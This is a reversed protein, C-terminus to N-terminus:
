RSAVSKSPGPRKRATDSRDASAGVATGGFWARGVHAVGPLRLVWAVPQTMGLDRALRQALAYGTFTQGGAVLEAPADDRGTGAAARDTLDVQDWVDLAHALAAARVQRPERSTYRVQLHPLRAPPRAFVRRIAAPPMWALMLTYMFLSFVILGMNLAIGTHLLVAGAVMVPRLRTWVLFPFGIELVLTFVNTSNMYLEWLRRNEDQCLWRVFNRFFDIHLPSFEPNTMTYWPAIGSWWSEGKLKSLGASLYMLCYNVQVLRIVFGASVLPRPGGTEPRRGARLADRGARYRALFWDVSWTAGCPAMMLYFLCLNMMTDQGFLSLPNRQIYALGALWTLVATVRTCVGLTFLVIVGLHIAHLLDIARPDTIHFFPSYFTHGMAVIEPDDPPCTWRECYDLYAARQTDDAPLRREVFDRMVEIDRPSEMALLTFIHTRLHPEAPLDDLFAHADERFLEREKLPVSLLYRGYKRQNEDTDAATTLEKLEGDREAFGAPLNQLFRLTALRTEGDGPLYKILRLVKPQNARDRALNDLFVRLAHRHEAIPPMRFRAEPTDYPPEPWKSQPVFNPWDRREQDAQARGYWGDPGFLAHLDFTYAVHVYLTLLGAVIRMLCLPTPDAPTFWFRSWASWVRGPLGPTPPYDTTASSM